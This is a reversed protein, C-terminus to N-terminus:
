VTLLQKKREPSFCCVDWNSILYKQEWIGILFICRIIVYWFPFMSSDHPIILIKPQSINILLSIQLQGSISAHPSIPCSEVERNEQSQWIIVAVEALSEFIIRRLFLWLFTFINPSTKTNCPDQVTKTPVLFFFVSAWHNLFYGNLLSGAMRPQRLLLPKVRVGRQVRGWVLQGGGRCGLCSATGLFMWHQVSCYHCFRLLLNVPSIASMVCLIQPMLLSERLWPGLGAILSARLESCALGSQMQASETGTWSYPWVGAARSRRGGQQTIFRMHNLCGWGEGSEHLGSEPSHFCSEPFSRCLFESPGM